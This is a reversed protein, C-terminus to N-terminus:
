AFEPIIIGAPGRLAIDALSSLPTEDPNVEIIFAGNNKAIEALSAAPQVAGATGIVIYVEADTATEFAKAIAAEPLSEGFWVIDPRLPSGCTICIPPCADMEITRDEAFVGCGTCRTRWINGHLELLHRSGAERHLGDVNQTILWFDSFRKELAVLAQHAPNPKSKAIISRRWLYWEWVLKPDRAFAEPSALEEPKFNKWLGAPGRFTPIGSEASVGAGTLVRIRKAGDLKKRIINLGEDKKL